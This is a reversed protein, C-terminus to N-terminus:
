KRKRQKKIQELLETSFRGFENCVEDSSFNSPHYPPGSDIDEHLLIQSGKHIEGDTFTEIIFHYRNTGHWKIAEIGSSCERVTYGIQKLTTEVVSRNIDYNTKRLMSGFTTKVM